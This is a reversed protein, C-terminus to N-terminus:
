CVSVKELANFNHFVLYIPEERTPLFSEGPTEKPPSEIRQSIQPLQFSSIWNAILIFVLLNLFARWKNLEKALEDRNDM